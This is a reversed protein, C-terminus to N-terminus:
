GFPSGFPLIVNLLFDLLICFIKQEISEIVIDSRYTLKILWFYSVNRFSRGYTGIIFVKIQKKSISFLTLGQKCLGTKHTNKIVLLKRIQQFFTAKINPSLVDLTRAIISIWFLFLNFRLFNFEREFCCIINQNNLIKEIM